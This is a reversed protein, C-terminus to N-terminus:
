MRQESNEKGKELSVKEKTRVSISPLLLFPYQLLNSTLTCVSPTKVTDDNLVGKRINMLCGRRESWDAAQPSLLEVM